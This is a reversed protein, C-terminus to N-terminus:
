VQARTYTKGDVKAVANGLRGAAFIAQWTEFPPEYTIIAATKKAVTKINTANTAVATSAAIGEFDTMAKAIVGTTLTTTILATTAATRLVASTEATTTGITTNAITRETSNVTMPAAEAAETAAKMATITAAISATMTRGVIIATMLM